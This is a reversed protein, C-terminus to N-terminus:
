PDAPVSRTACSIPSILRRREQPGVAPRQIKLANQRPRPSSRTARTCVKPRAQNAARRAGNHHRRADRTPTIKLPSCRRQLSRDETEHGKKEENRERPSPTTRR